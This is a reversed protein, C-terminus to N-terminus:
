VTLSEGPALVMYTAKINSCAQELWGNHYKAGLESLVLNHSPIVRKPKLDTIFEMAEGVKMWPGSAPVVLLDVPQDPKTFSDGPYYVSKNIMVALNATDPLSKYVKAHQSSFFDLNFNGIRTDEGESMVKLPLGEGLQEAVTRVTYIVVTPNERVIAVIKEPDLHDDHVHTVVVAYVNSFNTLSNSFVGPDIILRQGGDEIDLCAHEYKTIKM